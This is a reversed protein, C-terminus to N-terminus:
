LPIYQKLFQRGQYSKLQKERKLVEQRTGVAEHYILQWGGDFKATFKHTQNTYDNHELVRRSLYATQGIYIKQHKRNYIEYIFFMNLLFGGGAPPSGTSSCPIM